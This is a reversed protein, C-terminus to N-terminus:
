GRAVCAVPWDSYASASAPPDRGLIGRELFAHLVATSAAHQRITYAFLRAGFNWGNKSPPKRVTV